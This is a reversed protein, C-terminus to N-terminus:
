QVPKEYGHERRYGTTLAAICKIIESVGQLMLLAFGLPLFLKAPWRPLGGANQSLENGTWSEMFWPWSFYILLACMPMLFFIAGTLDIWIRKRDNVSAYFLDVRVHENVKLTWSAGLMVMGAFLVLQLDRLSNSNERYIDFLWGLRGEGSSLLRDLWVATSLSYRLLADFACVLAALLVFWNAIIGTRRGLGDIARSLRLLGEM